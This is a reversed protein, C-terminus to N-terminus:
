VVKYCMNLPWRGCIRCGTIGIYAIYIASGKTKKAVGQHTVGFNGIGTLFSNRGIKETARAEEFTM